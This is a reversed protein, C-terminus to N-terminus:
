LPPLLRNFSLSFLFFPDLYDIFPFFTLSPVRMRREPRASHKKEPWGDLLHHSRVLKTVAQHPFEHKKDWEGAHPILEADAFSKCMEYIM